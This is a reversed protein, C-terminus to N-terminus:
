RSNKIESLLIEIELNDQYLHWQLNGPCGSHRPHGIVGGASHHDEESDKSEIEGAEDKNDDGQVTERGDHEGDGVSGAALGLDHQHNGPDGGWQACQRLWEDELQLTVGEYRIVCLAGCYPEELWVCLCSILIRLRGRYTWTIKIDM